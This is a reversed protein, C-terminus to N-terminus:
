SLTESPGSKWVIPSTQHFLLNDAIKMRAVVKSLIAPGKGFNRLCCKAMTFAFVNDKRAKPDFYRPEPRDSMLLFPRDAHLASEAADASKDAAKSASKTADVMERTVSVLQRNFLATAVTAVAAVATFIILFFTDSEAHGRNPNSAQSRADFTSGLPKQPPQHVFTGESQSSTTSEASPRVRAARTPSSCTLLAAVILMLLPSPKLLM